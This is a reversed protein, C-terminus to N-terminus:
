SEWTVEWISHGPEALDALKSGMFRIAKRPRMRDRNPAIGHLDWVGEGMGSSTLDPPPRIM